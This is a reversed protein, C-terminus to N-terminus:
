IKKCNQKNKLSRTLFLSLFVCMLRPRGVHDPDDIYSDETERDQGATPNESATVNVSNENM